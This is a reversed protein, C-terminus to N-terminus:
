WGPARMAWWHAVVAEESGRWASKKRGEEEKGALGRRRKPDAVAEQDSSCTAEGIEVM